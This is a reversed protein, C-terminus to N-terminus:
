SAFVAHQEGAEVAINLKNDAVPTPCLYNKNFASPSLYSYNFDIVTNGETDPLPISLFRFPHVGNEASTDGFVAHLESGTNTVRLRQPTGELEFNVWGYFETPITAGDVTTVDLVESDREVQAPVVWKEQPAFTAIGQEALPKTTAPDFVRLAFKAQRVLATASVGPAVEIFEGPQLAPLESGVVSTSAVWWRGPLGPVEQGEDESTATIWFTGTLAAPGQPGKAFQEREANWAEWDSENWAAATVM